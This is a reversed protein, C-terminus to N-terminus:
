KKGARGKQGLAVLDVAGPKALTFPSGKQGKELIVRDRKGISSNVGQENQLKRQNNITEFQSARSDTMEKKAKLRESRTYEKRLKLTEFINKGKYEPNSKAENRAAKMTNRKIAATGTKVGRIQQRRDFNSFADGKVEPKDPTPQSNFIGKYSSSFGDEMKNNTLGLKTPNDTGYQEKNFKSAAKRISPDLDSYLVTRYNPTSTNTLSLDGFQGNFNGSMGQSYGANQYTGKGSVTNPDGLGPANTILDIGSNSINPDSYIEKGGITDGNMKIAM